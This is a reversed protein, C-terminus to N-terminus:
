PVDSLPSYPKGTVFWKKSEALRELDSIDYDNYIKGTVFWKKTM